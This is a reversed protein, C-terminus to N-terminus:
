QDDKGAQSVDLRGSRPDFKIIVNKEPSSVERFRGHSEIVTGPFLTGLVRVESEFHEEFRERLTFLRMSRKEMLKLYKVKQAHIRELEEREQAKESRRMEMDLKTIAAKIKKVEREEQEIQDQVLYDQGFSIHTKGGRESGINGVVLGRRVLIKGGIISSKQNPFRLKGNTKVMCRLCAKKLKIDGVAMLRAQEAFGAMIESKARLVGKTAGRVGEKVMISGKASVLAGEVGAGIRVTGGSMVVFGSTVTGTIDVDGPVKLNGTSMDIDGKVTHSQKVALTKKDYEIEGQAAAYLLITGDEETEQRVNEGVEVQVRKYDRAKVEKGTVDWGDLPENRPPNIRAILEGESVTTIRDQNRYDATGDQRITVDKGSAVHAVMEFEPEGGPVPLKGSAIRIQECPEGERAKEVLTALLDENLGQKVSNRELEKDVLERTLRLGTGKEPFLTLFANMKDGDLEVKIECDAHPRVRIHTVPEAAVDADEDAADDNAAVNEAADQWEDGTDSSAASDASGEAESGTESGSEDDPDGRENTNVVGFDLVGSIRSIIVNEKEDLNEHVELKEAPGPKGPITAGFVDQGAEGEVAPALVAVRQDKEVLALKQIQDTRFVERSEFDYLIEPKDKLRALVEETDEDKLFRLSWEIERDPGIEAPTGEALVYGFLDRDPGNYFEMIDTKIKDFDLGKLKSNKIAAGLEKLKLKTGRGVGKSVNLTALLKDDSVDIEFSADRSRSLPVQEIRTSDDVATRVIDAIEEEDILTDTDIGLSEAEAVIEEVGPPDADPDGPDFSLLCTSKDQSLELTWNHVKFPVVDAWNVGVRLVGTREAFLEQGRRQVGPGAYFYPDAPARPPVVRGFISRGPVGKGVPEVLGLKDSEEVYGTQEVTPDIYVRETDSVTETYDVVEKKPPMFPLKSKKEVVKQKKIKRSVTRTITPSPANRVVQDAQAMLDDPISMQQWVVQEPEPQEPPIGKALVIDTEPSGSKIVEEMRKKITKLDFGEKVGHQTLEHAVDDVTWTRSKEDSSPTFHATATLGADDVTLTLAGHLQPAAM